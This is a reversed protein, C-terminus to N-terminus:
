RAKKEGVRYGSDINALKVGSESFFCVDTGVTRVVIDGPLSHARREGLVVELLRTRHMTSLRLNLKTAAFHGLLDRADVPAMSVIQSRTVGEEFRPTRVAYEQFLAATRALIPAVDRSVISSALPILEARIRNRVFRPDRNSPDKFPAIGVARCLAETEQRRLGLIPHHRGPLMGSLGLVGSGRFLNALLTEAQDDATHGTAVEGLIRARERRARDEVNPGEGIVVRREVVPVSWPWLAEAVAAGETASEPRLQHDVHYAVVSLGTIRALVVLAVSDAGGSVAAAMTQGSWLHLDSRAILQGLDVGDGALTARVREFLPHMDGLNPEM